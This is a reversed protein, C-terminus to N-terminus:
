VTKKSKTGRSARKPKEIAPESETYETQPTEPATYETPKEVVPAEPNPNVAINSLETFGMKNFQERQKQGVAPVVKGRMNRFMFIEKDKNMHKKIVKSKYIIDPLQDIAEQIPVSRAKENKLGLYWDKAKFQARPDYKEYRAVKKARDEAKMLGYHKFYLNSQSGWQYAYMPALGCHLSAAKFHLGFEPVVKYFRINPFSLDLRVQDDSNWLQLCWFYWAVDTGRTLEEAKERTFSPDFIEDSDLTWIWDPKCHDIVKTLFDQKIRWQEKGWERNDIEIFTAYKEVIQKTKEDANNLLVCVNDVWLQKLTPELWRDGEGPGVIM